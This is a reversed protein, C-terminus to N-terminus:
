DADQLILVFALMEQLDFPTPWFRSDGKGPVFTLLEPYQPDPGIGHQKAWTLFTDDSTLEM